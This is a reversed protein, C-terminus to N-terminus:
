QLISIDQTQCGVSFFLSSGPAKVTECTVNCLHITGPANPNDYYWGPNSGCSSENGVYPTVIPNGGPGCIGINVKDAALTQGDPPPPIQLDCPIVADARIANLAALVSGAVDNTDTLYAQVTGGASAIGNLQTLSSGSGNNNSSIGLVYTQIGQGANYCNAASTQALRITANCSYEPIGDTVLLIVVKHSPNSTKWSNAHVCAGDIALQTPTGGEPMGNNLASVLAASNGPLPAIEVSANSYHAVSCVTPDNNATLAHNGFFALGVGIGGSAPDELFTKMADRVPQLRWKNTANANAPLCCGSETVSCSMSCSLDFMVMIDLPISEGEFAAGVCGTDDPQPACAAPLNQITLDTSSGKGGKPSLLISTSGGNTANGNDADGSQKACSTYLGLVTLSLLAAGLHLAMRRM